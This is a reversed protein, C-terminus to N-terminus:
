ICFAFSEQGPKINNLILWDGNKHEVQGEPEFDCDMLERWNGVDDTFILGYRAGIVDYYKGITLDRGDLRAYQESGGATRMSKFGITLDRGDLRAYEKLKRMVM